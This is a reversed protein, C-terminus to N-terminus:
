SDQSSLRKEIEAMEATEGKSILSAFKGAEADLDSVVEEVYRPWRRVFEEFAKEYSELKSKLEEPSLTNLMEVTEARNEEILDPEIRGMLDNFLWARIEAPTKKQPTPM